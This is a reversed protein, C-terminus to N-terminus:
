RPRSRSRPESSGPLSASRITSSFFGSSSMWFALRQAPRHEVANGHSAVIARTPAPRRGTRSRCGLVAQRQRQLAHSRRLFRVLRRAARLERSAAEPRVRRLGTGLLWGRGDVIAFPLRGNGTRQASAREADSRTSTSGAHSGTATWGARSARAAPCGQLQLGRARARCSPSIPLAWPRITGPQFVRPAATRPGACRDCRGGQARGEIGWAHAVLDVWLGGLHLVQVAARSASGRDRDVCPGGSGPQWRGTPVGQGYAGASSGPRLM